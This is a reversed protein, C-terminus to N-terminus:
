SLTVLIARFCGHTEFLDFQKRYVGSSNRPLENGPVFRPKKVGAPLSFPDLDDLPHTSRAEINM